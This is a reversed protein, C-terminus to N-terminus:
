GPHGAKDDALQHVIRHRNPHRAGLRCLLCKKKRPPCPGKCKYCVGPTRKRLGSSERMSKLRHCDHCLVMLNTITHPSGSLALKAWQHKSTIHDVTAIFSVRQEGDDDIWRAVRKNFALIQYGHKKLERIDVLRRACHKCKGDQLNLVTPRLRVAPSSRKVYGTVRKHSM